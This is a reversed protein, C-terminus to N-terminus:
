EGAEPTEDDVLIEKIADVTEEVLTNVVGISLPRKLDDQLVIVNGFQRAVVAEEDLLDEGSITARRLRNLEDLIRQRDIPGAM